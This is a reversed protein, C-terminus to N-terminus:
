PKPVNLFFNTSDSDEALDYNFYSLSVADAWRVAAKLGREVLVVVSSYQRQLLVQQLSEVYVKVFVAWVESLLGTQYLLVGVGESREELPEVLMLLEPPVV